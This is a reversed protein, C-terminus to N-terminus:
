CGPTHVPHQHGHDKEDLLLQLGLGIGLRQRGFLRVKLDGSSAALQVLRASPHVLGVPEKPSGALLGTVLIFVVPFLTAVFLLRRDGIARRLNVRVIPIM